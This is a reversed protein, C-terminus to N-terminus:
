RLNLRNLIDLENLNSLAAPNYRGSKKCGAKLFYYKLCELSHPGNYNECAAPFETFTFRKLLSGKTRM